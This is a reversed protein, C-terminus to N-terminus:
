VPLVEPERLRVPDPVVVVVAAMVEAAEVMGGDAEATGGMSGAEGAGAMAPVVTITATTKTTPAVRTAVTTAM